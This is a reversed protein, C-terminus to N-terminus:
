TSSSYRLTPVWITFPPTRHTSPRTLRASPTSLRAGLEPMSARRPVYSSRLHLARRGFPHTFTRTSSVPPRRPRPRPRRLSRRPRRRSHRLPPPPPTALARAAGARSLTQRRPARPPSRTRCWSPAATWRADCSVPRRQIPCTARHFRVPAAPQLRTFLLTLRPRMLPSRPSRVRARVLLLLESSRSLRSRRRQPRLPTRTHSRTRAARARPPRRSSRQTPLRLPRPRLVLPWLLPSPHELYRTLAPRPDTRSLSSSRTRSRRACSTARTRM